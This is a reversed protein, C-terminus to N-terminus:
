RIKALYRLKEKFRFTRAAPNTLATGICYKSIRRPQIRLINMIGTAASPVLGSRKLEIVVAHGLDSDIGSTFNHFSLSTDITLRETMAPNVLTMRTFITELQPLLSSASFFTKETLFECAPADEYFSTFFSGPILMRKKKTRGHNNKRKIELYTEGSNLYTRTRVKLRNLKGRQHENYMLLEPTDFYLTDYSALKRGGTELLRYGNESLMELLKPLMSDTTVYKTDIRNLLKVKDIEDLTVIGMSDCLGISLADLSM